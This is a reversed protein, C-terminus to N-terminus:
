HKITRKLRIITQKQKYCKELKWGIINNGVKISKKIQDILKYNTLDSKKFKAKQSDKLKSEAEDTYLYVSSTVIFVPAQDTEELGSAVSTESYDVLISKM